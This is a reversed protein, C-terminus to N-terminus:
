QNGRDRIAGNECMFKRTNVTLYESAEDPNLLPSFLLRLSKVPDMFEARVSPGRVCVYVYITFQIVMWKMGKFIQDNFKITGYKM